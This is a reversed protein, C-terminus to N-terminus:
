TSQDPRRPAFPRSGRRASMDEYLDEYRRVARSLSFDAIIRERASLGLAQRVGGPAQLLETWARSLAIADRPAVVLGTSGVLLASDGVDTAVCPVCCSMAEGIANPFGETWSSLTAIDFSSILSPIDRREGLLHVCDSLDLRAVRAALESSADVGSGALVFHVGGLRRHTLVVAQLFTDHDKDPHFRALMGVVQADDPIGLSHRVAKGTGPIPKFLDTDFGNPIVRWDRCAYGYEQHVRRGTESNVVIAAPLASLKALARPLLHSVSRIPGVPPATSRINWLIRPVLAALGAFLGLLDAHYLWTQLIDPRTSLLLYELRAMAIPLDRARRLNLSRVEVGSARIQDAVSGGALLSVVISRFRDKDARAALRALMLEAGGVGLGTIFHIITTRDHRKV